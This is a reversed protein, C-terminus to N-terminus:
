GANSTGQLPISDVTSAFRDKAAPTTAAEIARRAEAHPGDSTPHAKVKAILDDIEAQMEEAIVLYKKMAEHINTCYYRSRNAQHQVRMLNEWVCRLHHM